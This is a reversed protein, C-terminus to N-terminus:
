AVRYRRYTFWASIPLPAPPLPRAFWRPASAARPLPPEVRFAYRLARWASMGDDNVGVLFAFRPVTHCRTRSSPISFTAPLHSLALAPLLSLRPVDTLSFPSLRQKVLAPAIILDPLLQLMCCHQVRPSAIRCFRRWCGRRYPPPLCTPLLAATPSAPTAYTRCLIFWFQHLSATARTPLGRALRARARVGCIGRYLAGYASTLPALFFNHVGRRAARTHACACVAPQCLLVTLFRCLRVACLPRARLAMHAFRQRHRTRRAYTALARPAYAGAASAPAAGAPAGAADTARARAAARWRATKDRTGIWIHPLLRRAACLFARRRVATSLSRIM